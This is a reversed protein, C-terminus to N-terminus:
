INVNGERREIGEQEGIDGEEDGVRSSLPCLVRGQPFGLARGGRCGSSPLQADM